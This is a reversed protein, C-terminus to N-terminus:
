EVVAGTEVDCCSALVLGDQERLEKIRSKKRALIARYNSSVMIVFPMIAPDYELIRRHFTSSVAAGLPVELDDDESLAAAVCINSPPSDRDNCASILPLTGISSRDLKTPPSILTTSCGGVLELQGVASVVFTGTSADSRPPWPLAVETQEADNRDAVAIPPDTPDLPIPGFPTWVEKQDAHVFQVDFITRSRFGSKSEIALTPDMGAPYEILVLTTALMLNEVLPIASSRNPRTTTSEDCEKEGVTRRLPFLFLQTVVTDYLSPIDAAALMLTLLLLAISGVLEWVQVRVAPATYLQPGDPDTWSPFSDSAVLEGLETIEFRNMVWQGLFQEQNRLLQGTIRSLFGLTLAPRLEDGGAQQQAQSLSPAVSDLVANDLCRLRHESDQEVIRAVAIYDGPQTFKTSQLPDPSRRTRMTVKCVQAGSLYQLSENLQVAPSPAVDKDASRMSMPGSLAIRCHVPDSQNPIATKVWAFPSKADDSVGTGDDLEIARNRITFQNDSGTMKTCKQTASEVAMQFVIRRKADLQRAAAVAESVMVLPSVMTGNTTTTLSGFLLMEYEGKAARDPEMHLLVAAASGTATNPAAGPNAFNYDLYHLATPRTEYIGGRASSANTLMSSGAIRTRGLDVAVSFRRGSATASHDRLWQGVQDPSQGCLMEYASIFDGFATTGFQTATTDADDQRGNRMTSAGGIRVRTSEDNPQPFPVAMIAHDVDDSVEIPYIRQHLGHVNFRQSSMSEINLGVTGKGTISSPWGSGTEVSRDVSNSLSGTTIDSAMDGCQDAYRMAMIEAETLTGLVRVWAKDGANSLKNQIVSQLLATTTRRHVPMAYQVSPVSIRRTANSPRVWAVTVQRDRSEVLDLTVAVQYGPRRVFVAFYSIQVFAGVVLIRTGMQWVAFEVPGLLVENDM